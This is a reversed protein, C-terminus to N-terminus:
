RKGELVFKVQAKAVKRLLDDHVIAIPRKAQNEVAKKSTLEFTFERGDIRYRNGQGESISDRYLEGTDILVKGGRREPHLSFTYDTLKDWYVGGHVEGGVETAPSSRFRLDIDDRVIDALDRAIPTMDELREAMKKHPEVMKKLLASHELKLKM